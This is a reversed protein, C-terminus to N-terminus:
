ATSRRSCRTPITAIWCRWRTDQFSSGVMSVLSITSSAPLSLYAFTRPYTARVHSEQERDQASGSQHSSTVKGFRIRVTEAKTPYWTTGLQNSSYVAVGELFWDLFSSIRTQWMWISICHLIRCSMPSISKWPSKRAAAEECGMAVSCSQWQSLCLVASTDHASNM